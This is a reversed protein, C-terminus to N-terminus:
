GPIGEPPTAIAQFAAGADFICSSGEPSTGIITWTGSPSALLEIMLGRASIGMGIVTEGYNRALGAIVDARPACEAADAYHAFVMWLLVAYLLIVSAPYIRNMERM